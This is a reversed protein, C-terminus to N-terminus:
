RRRRVWRLYRALEPHARLQSLTNYHRGLTKEDPILRHIAKHCDRCIAITRSLQERTFRRKFWKNRHCSRPILHHATLRRRMLRGCLQCRAAEGTPRDCPQRDDSPEGVRRSARRREAM